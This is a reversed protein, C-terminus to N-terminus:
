ILNLKYQAAFVLEMKFVVWKINNLSIFVVQETLDM